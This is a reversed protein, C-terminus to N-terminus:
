TQKIINSEKNHKQKMFRSKDSLCVGCTSKNKIMKNTMTINWLGVNKNHKGCALCYITM